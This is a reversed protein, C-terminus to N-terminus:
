RLLGAMRATAKRPATSIVAQVEFGSALWGDDAGLPDLDSGTVGLGGTAGDAPGGM